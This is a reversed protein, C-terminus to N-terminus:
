LGVITSRREMLVVNRWKGNMQGLKDRVGLVRFGNKKHLEISSVNEPFIGSQLMWINSSESEKVLESLLLHGIGRGQAQIAVYVSVEAVGSYVCRNSVPSLAAWGLVAGNEIAVLRCSTLMSGDWENWEKAISQFTANGSDIGQQYIHQVEPFDDQYFKRILM